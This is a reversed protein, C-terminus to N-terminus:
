WWYTENGLWEEVLDKYSEFIDEFGIDRDVKTYLDYTNFQKLLPLM